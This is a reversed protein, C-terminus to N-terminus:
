RWTVPGANYTDNTAMSLRPTNTTQRNPASAVAAGVATAAGTNRPASTSASNWDGVAHATVRVTFTSPAAWTSCRM